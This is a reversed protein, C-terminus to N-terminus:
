ARAELFVASTLNMRDRVFRWPVTLRGASSRYGASLWPSEGPSYPYPDLIVVWPEGTGLHDDDYGTILIAHQSLAPDAPPQGVSIGGIVPYSLDISQKISAFEPYAVYNPRFPAGVGIPRGKTLDRYRELLTVFSPMRDLAVNCKTCDDECEPFTAAVVGCQYNSVENIDPFGLFKLAMSASAAWCWSPTQQAMFRVKLDHRHASAPAAASASLAAALLLIARRLESVGIPVQFM